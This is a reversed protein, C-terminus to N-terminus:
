LAVKTTPFRGRINSNFFKGKSDAEILGNATSRSVGSYNYTTQPTAKFVISLQESLQNYGVRQILTSDVAKTNNVNM